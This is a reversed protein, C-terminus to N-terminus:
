RYGKEKEIEIITEVNEKQHSNFRKYVKEDDSTNPKYWDCGKFFTKLDDKRFSLGSQAYMGNRLIYLERRSLDKLESRSYDREKGELVLAELEADTLATHTPKATPTPTPTATPTPTPVATPAVTPLAPQATEQPSPDSTNVPTPLIGTAVPTPLAGVSAAPTKQFWLDPDPGRTLLLYCLAASFLALLILFAVLLGFLRDERARRRRLEEAARSSRQPKTRQQRATRVISNAQARAYEQATMTNPTQASAAPSGAARERNSSRKKKRVPAPTGCFECFQDHPKYEMGCEKCRM